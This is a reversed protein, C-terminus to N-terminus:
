SRQYHLIINPCEIADDQMMGIARVPAFLPIEFYDELKTLRSTVPSLLPFIFDRTAPRDGGAKPLLYHSIVSVVM